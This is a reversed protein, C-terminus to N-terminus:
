REGDTKTVARSIHKLYFVLADVDGPGQPGRGVMTTGPVVSTPNILFRRLSRDDWVIGSAKLGESYGPFRASGARRGYFGALYPGVKNQEGYLDHCSWCPTSLRRGRDFRERESPSLTARIEGEPGGCASIGFAACAGLLLAAM